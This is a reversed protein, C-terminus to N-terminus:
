SVRGFGRSGGVMGHVLLTCTELRQCWQAGWGSERSGGTSGDAACCRRLGALESWM